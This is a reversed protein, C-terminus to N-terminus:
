AAYVSGVKRLAGYDKKLLNNRVVEIQRHTEVDYLREGCKTCVGARLNLAAVDNGGSVLKQVQRIVVLGGCVPCNKSIESM